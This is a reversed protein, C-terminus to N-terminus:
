SCIGCEDKTYVLAPSVKRLRTGLNDVFKSSIKGRAWPRRSSCFLTKYNEVIVILEQM